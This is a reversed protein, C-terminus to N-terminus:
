TVPNTKSVECQRPSYVLSSMFTIRWHLDFWIRERNFCGNRQESSHHFGRGGDLGKVYRVMNRRITRHATATEKVETKTAGRPPISCAVRAVGRTARWAFSADSLSPFCPFVLSVGIIAIRTPNASPSKVPFIKLNRELVANESDFNETTLNVKRRFFQPTKWSNKNNKKTWKQIVQIVHSCKKSLHSRQALTM